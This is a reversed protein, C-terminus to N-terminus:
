GWSKGERSTRNRQFELTRQLDKLTSLKESVKRWLLFSYYYFFRSDQSKDYAYAQRDGITIKGSVPIENSRYASWYEDQQVRDAFYADQYLSTVMDTGTYVVKQISLIVRELEGPEMKSSSEVKEFFKAIVEDIDGYNRVMLADIQENLKDIVGAEQSRPQLRMKHSLFELTASQETQNFVKGNPIDVSSDLGSGMASDKVADWNGLGKRLSTQGM